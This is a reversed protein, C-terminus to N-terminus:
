LPSPPESQWVSCAATVFPGILLPNSALVFVHCNDPGSNLFRSAEAHFSQSYLPQSMVGILKGSSSM